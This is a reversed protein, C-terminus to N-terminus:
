ADTRKVSSCVGRPVCHGRGAYFNCPWSVAVLQRVAAHEGASDRRGTCHRRAFAHAPSAIAVDRNKRSCNLDNLMSISDHTADEDGGGQGVGIAVDVHAMQDLVDLGIDPHAELLEDAVAADVDAGVVRVARRDHDAGPLFADAFFCSIASICAAWSRSKAANSM